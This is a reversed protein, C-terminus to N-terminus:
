LPQNQALGDRPAVIPKMRKESKRRAAMTKEGGGAIAFLALSLAFFALGCCKCARESLYPAPSRRLVTGTDYLKSEYPRLGTIKVLTEGDGVYDLKRAYAAMVDKDNELAARELTLEDRIKQIAATRGSIDLKQEQLTRYASMGDRGAFLSLLVYALTGVFVAALSKTQTM